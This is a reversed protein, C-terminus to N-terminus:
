VRQLGAPTAPTAMLPFAKAANANDRPSTFRTGNHTTTKAVITSRAGGRMPANTSGGVLRILDGVIGRLNEAQSTLEEAASASEEAASANAQTVQDMQGVAVNM